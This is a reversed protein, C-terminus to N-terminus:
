ELFCGIAITQPIKIPRQNVLDDLANKLSHETITKRKKGLAYAWNDIRGTYVLSDNKDIIIAQPTISAKYKHAYYKTTDLLIPIQIKYKLQYRDIEKQSYTYGSVIGLFEIGKTQYEAQLNNITLTYIQCLPCEPSLFLLVKASTQNLKVNKNADNAIAETKIPAFLVLPFLFLIFVKYNRNM